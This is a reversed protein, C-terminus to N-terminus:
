SAADSVPAWSTRLKTWRDDMYRLVKASGGKDTTAMSSWFTWPSKHSLYKPTVVSRVRCSSGRSESAGFAHSTDANHHRRECNAELITEGDRVDIEKRDPLCTIKMM